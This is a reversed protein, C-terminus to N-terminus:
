LVVKCSAGNAMHAIYIGQPLHSIDITASTAGQRLPQSAVVRGTADYLMVVEGAGVAPFVAVLVDGECHLSLSRHNASLNNVDTRTIIVNEATPEITIDIEDTELNGVFINVAYRYYYDKKGYLLSTNSLVVSMKDEDILVAVKNDTGWVACITGMIIITDGQWQVIAPSLEECKEIYKYEHIKYGSNYLTEGNRNFKLLMSNSGDPMPIAEFGTYLISSMSGIGHLIKDNTPMVTGDKMTIEATMYNLERNDYDYIKGLENIQCSKVEQLFMEDNVYDDILVSKGIYWEGFDYLLKESQDQTDYHYVLNDSTTRLLEINSNSKNRVIQYADGNITTDGDVYYEYLYAEYLSTRLESWSTTQNYFSVGQCHLYFAVFIATLILLKKM